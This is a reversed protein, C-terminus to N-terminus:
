THDSNPFGIKRLLKRLTRDIRQCRVMKLKKLRAKSHVNDPMKQFNQRTKYGRIHIYMAMTVKNKKRRLYEVNDFFEVDLCIRM